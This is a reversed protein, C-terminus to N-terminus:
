KFLPVKRVIRHLFRREHFQKPLVDMAGHGEPPKPFLEPMMVDHGRQNQTLAQGNVQQADDLMASTIQEYSDLLKQNIVTSHTESSGPVQFNVKELKSIKNFHQGRSKVLKQVDENWSSSVMPLGILAVIIVIVCIAIVLYQKIYEIAKSLNM